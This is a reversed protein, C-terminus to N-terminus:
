SRLKKAGWAAAFLEREVMSQNRQAARLVKTACFIIKELQKLVVCVAYKSADVLVEINQDGQLESQMVDKVLMSKVAQFAKDLKSTWQFPLNETTAAYLTHATHALHPLMGKYFQLLGLFSQLEQVTEPKKARNLMDVKVPDPKISLHQVIYGM